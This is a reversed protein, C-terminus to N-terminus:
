LEIYEENIINEFWNIKVQYELALDAALDADRNLVPSLEFNTIFTRIKNINGLLTVVDFRYQTSKFKPHHSIFHLATHYIKHQKKKDISEIPHGYTDNKRYRVEIFVLTSDDLMILDIEGYRCYYNRAILRLNFSCLYKYAFNEIENGLTRSM